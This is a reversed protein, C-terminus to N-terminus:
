NDPWSTEIEQLVVEVDRGSIYDVMGTWFSGTGVAGPMLDSGDFRFSDASQLLRAQARMVQNPYWALDTGSNPSLFRGSEVWARSAEPTALYQMAQRVEPRDSVMSFVDGAGLVPKGHEADIPPFYFFDVDEGAQIDPPFFSMIASGQRHLFCGPPDEFMPNMADGFPITLIATTGGEVYDPDLWIQGMLDVARQVRADTFPIEHAVWQDYVEPGATRLLIDEVWDTAVWGTAGSSEIGICWPTRGEAVMQESLAILEDWTEPVVYGAEAFEPTPYWVLSKVAARYWIGVLADGVTALELWFSQYNQQLTDAEIVETLDQLKGEQAFSVMLGPQPFAIIDPPDGGEMRVTVLSEFDGSGEYQVEIGTEATFPALAAEFLDADSDVFAGFITVKPNSRASDERDTQETGGCATLIMLPAVLLSFGYKSRPTLSAM